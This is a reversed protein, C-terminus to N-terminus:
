DNNHHIVENLGILVLNSETKLTHAFISSKLQTDFFNMDGGCLLVKLNPWKSYYSEIFGLAEYKIGNQVGTLISSNTDNGYQESFALESKVLPLKGTFSHMAKFRMELGPSISGGWYKKEADIFDYTICTGSDIVLCNENPYLAAAGIVAAYRDAGLTAPSKYENIIPSKTSATFHLYRTQTKLCDQIDHVDAKVSSVISNQIKNDKIFTTLYSSNLTSILETTVLERNNFLAIKSLTNGIDVVLNIM